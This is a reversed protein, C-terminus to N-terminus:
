SHCAVDISVHLASSSASYADLGVCAVKRQGSIRVVLPGVPSRFM